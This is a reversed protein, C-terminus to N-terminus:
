SALMMRIGFGSLSMVFLSFKLGIDSIFMSALIRLFYQCIEDLLVNFLDYMMILHSEDWPHM